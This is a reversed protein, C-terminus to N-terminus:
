WEPRIRAERATELAADAHGAPVQDDGADGPEDAGV